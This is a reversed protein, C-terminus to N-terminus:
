FVYLKNSRFDSSSPNTHSNIVSYKQWISWFTSTYVILNLLNENALRGAQKLSPLALAVMHTGEIGIIKLRAVNSLPLTNVAM